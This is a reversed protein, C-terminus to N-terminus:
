EQEIHLIHTFPDFGTERVFLTFISKLPFSISAVKDNKLSPSYVCLLGAAFNAAFLAEGAAM